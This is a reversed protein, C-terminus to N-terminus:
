CAPLITSCRAARAFRGVFGAIETMLQLIRSHTPEGPEYALFVALIDALIPKKDRSDRDNDQDTDTEETAVDRAPELCQSTADSGCAGLRLAKLLPNLERHDGIRRRHASRGESQGAPEHRDGSVKVHAVSANRVPQNDATEAP